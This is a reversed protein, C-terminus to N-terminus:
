SRGVERVFLESRENGGLVRADQDIAVVIKGIVDGRHHQLACREGEVDRGEDIKVAIAVRVDILEAFADGDAMLIEAPHARLLRGSM